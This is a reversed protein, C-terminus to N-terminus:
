PFLEAQLRERELRAKGYELATNLFQDPPIDGALYDAADAHLVLASESESRCAQDLEDRSM